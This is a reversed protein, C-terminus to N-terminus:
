ISADDDEFVVIDGANFRYENKRTEYKIILDKRCKM